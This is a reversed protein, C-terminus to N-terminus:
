KSRINLAEKIKNVIIDEADIKSVSKACNSMATLKRPNNLLDFLVPGVKEPIAENDNIVIAAGASVFSEANKSQHDMAAYPYPILISPVGAAALEMMVGAGSRSIAIDCARYAKGIKKIYPSLFISGAEIENQSRYKFEEYSYEGTSWIIGTNKFERSYVKKLGLVLQNLKLAGQSGGVVLIIKDCHGLNFFKRAENKPTEVLVNDRIPNGCHLYKEPMKFYSVADPFTGFIMECYKEFVITVKGPVSNQECLFIPKKLLKAAVLAPVSSYGGMGIVASIDNKKILRIAKLFSGIFRIIFIPMKFPNKTLAPAKYTSLKDNGIDNFTGLKMDAKVTLFFPTVAGDVSLKEYIAIGPSIHGGTGGGIIMINKSM